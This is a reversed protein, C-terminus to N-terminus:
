RPPPRLRPPLPSRAIWGELPSVQSLRASVQQHGPIETPTPMLPSLWSRKRRQDCEQVLAARREGAAAGERQHDEGVARALPLVRQREDGIDHRLVLDRRESLAAGGAGVLHGAPHSLTLRRFAGRSRGPVPRRRGLLLLVRVRRRHAAHDVRLPPHRRCPRLRQARPGAATRNGRVYTPRVTGALRCRGPRRAARRPRSARGSHGTKM